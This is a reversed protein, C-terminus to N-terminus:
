PHMGCVQADDDLYDVWQEWARWWTRSVLYWTQGEIFDRRRERELWGRVISGEERKTRPSLGFVIHCMQFAFAGSVQVATVGCLRVQFLQALLDDALRTPDLWTAVEKLSIKEAQFPFFEHCPM